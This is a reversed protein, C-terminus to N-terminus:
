GNEPTKKHPSVCSGQMNRYLREQIIVAVEEPGLGDTGVEFDCDAYSARRESFLAHLKEERDPGALLPRDARSGVRRLIEEPSAKLCVITGFSRLLARNEERVVAGGGTSVVLDTGFEGASLREITKSESARFGAEGSSSFIERIPMGAEKEILEDLDLFAFGLRRALLRGVTSKGTGMFGTLVVPRPKQAEKSNM